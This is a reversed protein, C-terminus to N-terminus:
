KIHYRQGIKRSRAAIVETGGSAGGLWVDTVSAGMSWAHGSGLGAHQIFRLKLFVEEWRKMFCLVSSTSIVALKFEPYPIHYSTLIYLPRVWWVHNHAHYDIYKTHTLYKKYFICSNWISLFQWSCNHSTMIIYQFLYRDVTCTASAWEMYTEGNRIGIDIQHSSQTWGWIDLHQTFVKACWGM